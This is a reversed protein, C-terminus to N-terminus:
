VMRARSKKRREGAQQQQGGKIPEGEVDGRGPQDQDIAVLPGWAAPRHDDLGEALEHDDPAVVNDAQDDKKIRTMTLKTTQDGLTRLPDGLDPGRNVKSAMGPLCIAM